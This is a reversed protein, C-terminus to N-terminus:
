SHYDVIQFSIHPILPFMPTTSIPCIFVILLLDFIEFYFSNRFFSLINNVVQFVVIPADQLSISHISTEMEPEPYPGLPPSKCVLYHFDPNRLVRTIEQSASLIDAM